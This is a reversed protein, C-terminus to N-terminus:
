IKTLIWQELDLYVFARKEYNDYKLVQLDQQFKKFEGRRDAVPIRVLKSFFAITQHQLKNTDHLKTAIIKTNNALYEMIEYNGMDY